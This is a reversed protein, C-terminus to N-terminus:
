KIWQKEEKKFFEDVISLINSKIKDNNLYDNYIKQTNKIIYLEHNIGSIELSKFLDPEFNSKNYNTIVDQNFYFCQSLRNISKYKNKNYLIVATKYKHYEYISNPTWNIVNEHHLRNKNTYIDINKIEFLRLDVNKPNFFSYYKDNKSSQKIEPTFISDHIYFSKKLTNEKTYKWANYSTLIFFSINPNNKYKEVRKEIDDTIRIGYIKDNSFSIDYESIDGNIINCKLENKNLFIHKNDVLNTITYDSAKTKKNTSIINIL